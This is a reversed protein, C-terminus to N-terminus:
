AGRRTRPHGAAAQRVDPASCRAPAEQVEARAERPGNGNEGFRPPEQAGLRWQPVLFVVSLGALITITFFATQKM